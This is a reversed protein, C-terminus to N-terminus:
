GPTLGGWIWSVGPIPCGMDLDGQPCTVRTQSVWPIPGELDLSGQPCPVPVEERCM